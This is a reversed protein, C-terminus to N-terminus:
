AHMLTNRTAVNCFVSSMIANCLYVMLHVNNVFCVYFNRYIINIKQMNYMKARNYLRVLIIGWHPDMSGIRGMIGWRYLTILMPTQHVLDQKYTSHSTLDVFLIERTVLCVPSHRFRVLFCQKM